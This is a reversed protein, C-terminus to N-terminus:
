RSFYTTCTIGGPTSITVMNTTNAGISPNLSADLMIREGPNLVGPEFQEPLNGLMIWGVKWTNASGNTAYPLWKVDYDSSSDYYQVIVDWKNFDAMKTQGTNQLVVEVHSGASVNAGVPTLATRVSTESIQGIQNLNATSSDVSTIFGQSMTMGGFVLLAICILSILATEM